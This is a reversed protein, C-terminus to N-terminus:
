FTLNSATRTSTLDKHELIALLMEKSKLPLLPDTLRAYSYLVWKQEEFDLFQRTSYIINHSFGMSCISM